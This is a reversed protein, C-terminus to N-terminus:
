EQEKMELHLMYQSKLLDSVWGVPRNKLSLLRGGKGFFTRINVLQFRRDWDTLTRTSPLGWKLFSHEDLGTRRIVMWNAMRIGLPSCVDMLLQSGPFRDALRLLFDRVQQEKFYYLVGAAFFLVQEKIELSDLWDRELFSAAIFKRRSSEKIFKRRLAIVDPLDLDYWLLTGNDVREFTTDLGCGINVITGGPYKALFTRIAEDIIICRTIWAVQSMENVNKAISAFDIDVAHMIALATKDVLRPHSKMTEVARGWLPLFLTKQVDGVSVAIKGTM